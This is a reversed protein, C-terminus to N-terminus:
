QDSSKVVSEEDNLVITDGAASFRVEGNEDFLIHEEGEIVAVMIGAGDVHPCVFPSSAVRVGRVLVHRVTTRIPLSLTSRIKSAEELDAQYYMIRIEAPKGQSRFKHQQKLLQLVRAAMSIEEKRDKKGM